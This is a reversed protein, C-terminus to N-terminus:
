LPVMYGAFRLPTPVMTGVSHLLMSVVKDTCRLLPCCTRVYLIRKCARALMEVEVSERVHPMSSLEAVRGLYRM